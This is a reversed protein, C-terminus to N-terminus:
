SKGWSSALVWSSSPLPLVVWDEQSTPLLSSSAMKKKGRQLSAELRVLKRSGYEEWLGVPRRGVAGTNVSSTDRKRSGDADNAKRIKLEQEEGSGVQEEKVTGKGLGEKGVPPVGWSEIRPVRVENEM